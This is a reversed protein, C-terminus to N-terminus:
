IEVIELYIKTFDRMWNKGCLLFVGKEPQMQLEIPNREFFVFFLISVSM